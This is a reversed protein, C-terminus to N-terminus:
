HKCWIRLLHLQLRIEKRFLDNLCGKALHFSIPLSVHLFPSVAHPGIGGRCQGRFKMGITEINVSDTHGIRVVDVHDTINRGIGIIEKDITFKRLVVKDTLHLM